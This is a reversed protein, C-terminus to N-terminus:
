NICLNFKYVIFLQIALNCAMFSFKCEGEDTGRSMMGSSQGQFVPKKVIETSGEESEIEPKDADSKEDPGVESSDIPETERDLESNIENDSSKKPEIAEPTEPKEPKEPTKPVAPVKTEDEINAPLTFAPTVLLCVAVVFLINVRNM